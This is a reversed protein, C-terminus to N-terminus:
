FGNTGTLRIWGMETKVYYYQGGIAESGITGAPDTTSTPVALWRNANYEYIISAALASKVDDVSLRRNNWVVGDPTVVIFYSGSPLPSEIEFQSMKVPTEM